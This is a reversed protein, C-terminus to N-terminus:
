EEPVKYLHGPRPAGCEVCEPDYWSVPKGCKTCSWRKVENKVLKEASMKRLKKLNTLYDQRHPYNGMNILNMINECPLEKCDTCRADKQKKLACLRINCNQCHGALKGGSLCGDCSQKNMFNTFWKIDPRLQEFSGTKELRMKIQKDDGHKNIYSPCVGCYIGCAAILNEKGTGKATAALSNLPYCACIVATGAVGKVFKRRSIKDDM